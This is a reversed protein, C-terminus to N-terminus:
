CARARSTKAPANPSPANPRNASAAAFSTSTARCPWCGATASPWACTSACTRRGARGRRFGARAVPSGTAKTLFRALTGPLSDAEAKPYAEAFARAFDPAPVYNRRLAKPLGRILAPPRRRSWARCWGAWARATWRRSCTCRCTWPSATRPTAPSSATTCRWGPMAWRSSSRSASPRAARAPCCTPWRGSWRASRNRRRSRRLRQRARRRQQMDAPLRDLYWRAQWDEDAVLGARRLKAEEERAKELTALNRKLFPCRTDVEGPVLGQRVFIERAEAPYLGGYHVPKKPALVLGFLSIQESGIM